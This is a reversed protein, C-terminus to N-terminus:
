DLFIYDKYNLKNEDCYKIIGGCIIAGAGYGNNRLVRNLHTRDANIANAFKTQNNDFKNEILKNVMEVNLKM